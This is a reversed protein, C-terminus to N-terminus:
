YFLREHSRGRGFVYGCWEGAAWSYQFLIMLPLAALFPRRVARKPWITQALRVLTLPPVALITLARLLREWGGRTRMGGFARGHYFRSIFFDGVGIPKNLAVVISPEVRLHVGERKLKHNHFTKWFGEKVLTDRDGLVSSRYALNNGTLEGETLGARLPPIFATYESLFTAWGGVNRRAETLTVAGGIVPEPYHAFAKFLNEAWCPEPQCYPDLIAIIEGRAVAIGRGRLFPVTESHEARIRRVDPFRESLLLETQLDSSGDVVIIEFVNRHVTQCLLHKLCPELVGMDKHLAIVVSLSLDSM